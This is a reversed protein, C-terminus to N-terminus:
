NASAAKVGNLRPELYHHPMPLEVPPRRDDIRYLVSTGSRWIPTLGRVLDPSYAPPVMLWVYDFADRPLNALASTFQGSWSAIHEGFATM